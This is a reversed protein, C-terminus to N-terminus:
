ACFHATGNKGVGASLQVAAFKGEPMVPLVGNGGKKKGQKMFSPEVSEMGTGPHASGSNRDDARQNIKRFAMYLM